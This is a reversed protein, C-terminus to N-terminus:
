GGVIWDSQIDQFVPVGEQCPALQKLSEHWADRRGLDDEDGWTVKVLHRGEGRGPRVRREQLVVNKEGTHAVHSM